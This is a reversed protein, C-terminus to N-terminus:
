IFNEYNEMVCMINMINDITEQESPSLFKRITQLMASQRDTDNGVSLASLANKNERFVKMTRQFEMMQIMMALPMQSRTHVFPLMAKLMQLEKTQVLRDFDTQYQEQDQEM